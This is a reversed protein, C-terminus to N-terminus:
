SAAGPQSPRRTLLAVFQARPLAPAFFQGQGLDCGLDQLVKADAATEIGNAVALAGLRHALDILLRAITQRSQSATLDHVLSRALKIETVPLTVLSALAGPDVGVNDVAIDIGHSRLRDLLDRTDPKIRRVDQEEIDFVLGPWKPALQQAEILGIIQDADLADIPINM